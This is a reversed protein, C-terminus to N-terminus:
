EEEDSVSKQKGAFWSLIYVTTGGDECHCRTIGWGISRAHHLEGLAEAECRRECEALVWFLDIALWGAGVALLLSVFIIPVLRGATMYQNQGIPTLRAM